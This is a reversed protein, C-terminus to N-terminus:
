LYDEKLLDAPTQVFIDSIRVPTEDRLFKELHLKM